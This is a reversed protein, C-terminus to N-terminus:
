KSLIMTVFEIVGDEPTHNLAIHYLNVLTKSFGVTKMKLICSHIGVLSYQMEHWLITRYIYTIECGMASFTLEGFRSQM